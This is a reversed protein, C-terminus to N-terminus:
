RSMTSTQELIGTTHAIAIKWTMIKATAAIEKQILNRIMNKAGITM